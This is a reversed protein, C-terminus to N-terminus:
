GRDTGAYSFDLTSGASARVQLKWGANMPYRKIIDVVSDDQYGVRMNKCLYIVITGDTAVCDAYADAAGINCVRIDRIQLHLAPVAIGLDALSTTAVLHAAVLTVAM